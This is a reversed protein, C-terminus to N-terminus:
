HWATPHHVGAELEGAQRKQEIRKTYKHLSGSTEKFNFEPRYMATQSKQRYLFNQAWYLYAGASAKYNQMVGNAGFTNYIMYFSLPFAVLLGLSLSARSAVERRIRIRQDSVAIAKELRQMSEQPTLKRSEM